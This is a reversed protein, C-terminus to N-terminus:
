RRVLQLLHRLRRRPPKATHHAPAAHHPTTHHAPATHHSSLRFTSHYPLVPRMSSCPLNQCRAPSPFTSIGCGGTTLRSMRCPNGVSDCRSSEKKCSNPCKCVNGGAFKAVNRNSFRAFCVPRSFHDCPTHSHASCWARHSIIASPYTIYCSPLRYLCNYRPRNCAPSISNQSPVM